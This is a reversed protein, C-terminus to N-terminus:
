SVGLPIGYIGETSLTINSLYKRLSVGKFAFLDPLYPGLFAYLTFLLAIISLAPGVSRRTAELLLIVLVVGTVLDLTTPMGARMAIAEYDLTLYLAALASIIAFLYDIVPVYDTSCLFKLYRKPNKFFPMSLFLLALGFALHITRIQTSDFVRKWAQYLQILAWSVAIAGFIFKEYPRFTRIDGSEAKIKSLKSAKIQM